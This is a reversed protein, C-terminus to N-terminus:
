SAWSTGEPTWYKGGRDWGLFMLQFIFFKNHPVTHRKLIPRGSSAALAYEKVNWVKMVNLLFTWPLIWSIYFQCVEWLLKKLFGWWLSPVTEQTIFDKFVTTLWFRSCTGWFKLFHFFFTSSTVTVDWTITDYLFILM